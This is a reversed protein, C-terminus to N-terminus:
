ADDAGRRLGGLQAVALPAVQEVGVVRQNALVQRLETPALDVRSAVAEQRGEVARRPRHPGRARDAVAHAREAELDAGTEVRALTLHHPRLEAPDGHVDAGADRREGPGALDQHRAGHAVEDGARPEPERVAARVSELADGALPM